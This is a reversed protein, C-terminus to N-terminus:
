PNPVGFSAAGVAWDDRKNTDTASVRRVSSTKATQINTWDASVEVATPTTADGCLAGGCNAPSWQGEAQLAQLAANFDGPPTVGTRVFSAGDQTVGLTDRVRLVRRSYGMDTGTSGLFDWATDYNASNASAPYQTKSTTESASADGNSAAPRIHVVIIDGAAVVANPFTALATLTAGEGMLLTFNNVSGGKVAVLEVLDRGSTINPNVETIRLEAADMYGTFTATNGTPQVATGRTDKVSSAVTVKYARAETQTSTTLQVQRDTVTAASAVLGNDFTFQSGNALVSAPDLKRDFNVVVSTLSAATASAVKPGPCSLATLDDAAWASPQAQASFRWLPAQATVSCGQTVDLEDKVATTLRLKLNTNITSNGLTVFSASEHGASAAAFTSAVTGNVSILESEYADLNAVLDINSVDNVLADVSDTTRYLTLDSIRTLQVLGNVTKKETVHLNVHHGAQIDLPTPDFVVFVAPGNKEAQIFLGAPDSSGTALKTYTVLAYDILEDVTGDPKSRINAIQASTNASTPITYKETRPTEANNVKDVSFFKLTTTATITIPGSTYRTSSTTPTSGDLTYYTGDCGTGRTGDDCSLYVNLEAFYMGGAPTATTTPATEDPDIAYTETRVTEANGAKDVSFFKLTTDTSLAIASTYRTSGTTPTSGDLTYYTGACGSAGTDACALTINQRTRYTGGAPSVTTTPADPDFTYVETQVTSVNGVNDVAVFKLTTNASVSIPATYTASSTDPTSGDTTYHISGCGSGGSNDTCTLTVDRTSSYFGGAPAAAVTPKVTDIVYSETRVSEENGAADVSFFKLTTNASISLPTSYTSSSRTPTSGDLTYHTATCGSGSGDECMLTVSQTEKYARGSPIATTTPAAEDIRYTETHLTSTNGVSNEAFFKLTTTATVSIPSSYTASSPTPTSGDTTYYIAVCTGGTAGPNCNLTVLQATRYLGGAPTASATPISTNIVYAATKVAEANGVADVSFFKLTASADLPIPASYRPSSTTPESDDTTYHTAACGSGTGDNCVLTVNQAEDYTGAAPTATTTPAVTDIIYAASHVAEANGATDVSFFKLTTTAAISIAAAYRPSGTTPESGDTTYHTAACGTGTGDDCALTVSQAANYTGAAPTATTTPAVADIVYTATNVTEAHGATDVSFFKLTTNTAISIAATYKPSSTTPESGDTTFYTAACGTGTGDGCALTVSQAANYTSGPPTATTTPAATDVVFSQTQVTEANGSKDVSFFKLSTNQSLAVPASYRTSSASPTSGDTTYYTADCGSGTGDECLLTVSVNEKFTGGSPTARTSPPATDPTPPPPTPTPDCASAFQLALLALALRSSWSATSPM